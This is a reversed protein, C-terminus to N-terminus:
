RELRVAKGMADAVGAHAARADRVRDVHNVRDVLLVRLLERVEDAPEVADRFAVPRQEVVGGGDPELSIDSPLACLRLLM